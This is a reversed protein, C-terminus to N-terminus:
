EIVEGEDIRFWQEATGCKMWGDTKCTECFRIHQLVQNQQGVAESLQQKQLELEVAKRWISDSM